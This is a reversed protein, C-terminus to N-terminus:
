RPLAGNMTRIFDFMDLSLSTWIAAGNILGCAGGIGDTACLDVVVFDVIM